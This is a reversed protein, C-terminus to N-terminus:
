PRMRPGSPRSGAWGRLIKWHRRQCWASPYTVASGERSKVDVMCTLRPVLLAIVASERSDDGCTCNGNEGEHHM